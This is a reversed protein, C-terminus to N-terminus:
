ERGPSIVAMLTARIEAFREEGDPKGGDREAVYFVDVVQDLYTGIKAFRIVLKLEHLARALEYLLGRRDVTFVEVILCERSLNTDIRVDNPLNTLRAAAVDQDAGWLRPFSPPTPNDIAAVMARCIETLRQENAGSGSRDEVMYRQLLLGEELLITEASLIQLQKSSLAGAMSSFIGRGSGQDVGATLELTRGDSRYAGWADGQRGTLKRLRQLTEALQQPTHTAVYSEPLAALQRAFWEDSAVAKPLAAQVTQAIAARREARQDPQVDVIDMMRRYLETLVEVKWDNLVGPGVADMDACSILYLLKLGEPGGLDEVFKALVVPDSTDRRFALHTLDLHKLVLTALMTTQPESLHLREATRRAIEEGVISHDRQQGKGLDHILLALHLLRKDRLGRYTQGLFDDREAFLTAKEVARICHEDVTYKHYQNFQLLCRATAYEPIVKELIALEHLRRLLDGLQAPNDLIELFRTITELTLQSSLNPAARYVFYWTEHGIRCDFLRALDVLRLVEDVRKQLKGRGLQTASIEAGAIRYDQEINRSLLSGIVRQVTPKPRTIESMRAAMFWVHGAHRFYDRMFQEVPLLGDRGRYGFKEAIRLQEGRTLSDRAANAEFHLDNRVRTLFDRSTQLRHHDFKSLVGMTRLRDLDSVGSHLFWLWRLLHLDRLGGRSRKVNPELLYVTEGFKHREERRANIFAEASAAGRRRIVKEFAPYFSEFLDQSGVLTRSEILATGIVADTKALSIAEEPSRLSQGVDLGVDFLDQTMRRALKEAPGRAAPDYLIMLDVDSFPAMQRRGYGGHAVLVSKDRLVEGEGGFEDLAARHLDLVVSDILSSLKTCVQASPLGLDHQQRIRARESALRQRCEGVMARLRVGTTSTEAM